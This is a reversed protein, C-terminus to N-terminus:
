PFCPCLCDSFFFFFWHDNWIVSDTPSCQSQTIIVVPKVNTEKLTTSSNLFQSSEGQDETKEGIFYSHQSKYFSFSKSIWELDLMTHTLVTCLKKCVIYSITRGTREWRVVPAPWKYGGPEAASSFHFSKRSDREAKIFYDWPKGSVFSSDLAIYRGKPFTNPDILFFNVFFM